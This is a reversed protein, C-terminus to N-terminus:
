IKSIVRIPDLHNNKSYSGNVTTCKVLSDKIMHM